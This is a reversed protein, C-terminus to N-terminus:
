MWIRFLTAICGAIASLLLFVVEAIKINESPEDDGHWKIAAIGIIVLLFCTEQINVVAEINM